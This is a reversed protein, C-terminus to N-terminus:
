GTVVVLARRILRGNRTAARRVVRKIHGPPIGPETELGVADHQSPDFPGSGPDIEVLGQAGILSDLSAIVEDISAGLMPMTTDTQRAARSSVRLRDIVPLLQVLVSEFEDIRAAAVAQTDLHQQWTGPSRFAALQVDNAAGIVRPALPSQLSDSLSDVNSIGTRYLTSM